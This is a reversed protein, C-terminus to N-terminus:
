SGSSRFASGGVILSLWFAALWTTFKMPITLGFLINLAKITWIPSYILFLVVLVGAGIIAIIKLM